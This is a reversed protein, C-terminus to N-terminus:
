AKQHFRELGFFAESEASREKAPLAEINGALDGGTEIEIAGYRVKGRIRGTSRLVLLGTCVLNGSLTGAIEASDVAARGHFKGTPAVVLAGCDRVKTNAEGEVYLMACGHIKGQVSINVGITLVNEGDSKRRGGARAVADTVTEDPVGNAVNAVATYRAQSEGPHRVDASRNFFRFMKNGKRQSVGSCGSVVGHDM